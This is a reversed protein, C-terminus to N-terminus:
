CVCPYVFDLGSNADTQPLGKQMANACGFVCKTPLISTAFLLMPVPSKVSLLLGGSLTQLDPNAQYEGLKLVSFDWTGPFADTRPMSLPDSRM